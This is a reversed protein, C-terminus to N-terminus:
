IGGGLLLSANLQIRFLPRDYMNYDGDVFSAPSLASSFQWWSGTSVDFLIAARLMTRFPGINLFLKLHPGLYFDKAECVLARDDTWSAKVFAESASTRTMLYTTSEGFCIGLAPSAVRELFPLYSFLFFWEGGSLYIDRMGEQGSLPQTGSAHAPFTTTLAGSVEIDMGFGEALVVAAGASLSLGGLYWPSELRDDLWSRTINYEEVVRMMGPNYNILDPQIGLGLYFLGQAKLGPPIFFLFLLALIKLSNIKIKMSLLISTCCQLILNGGSNGPSIVFAHHITQCPGKMLGYLWVAKM